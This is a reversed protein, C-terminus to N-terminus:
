PIQQADPPNRGAAATPYKPADLNLMTSARQAKQTEYMGILGSASPSRNHSHNRPARDAPHAALLDALSRRQQAKPREQPAEGPTGVEKARAEREAQLRKRRQALTEEEEPAPSGSVEKGKGKPESLGGGFQSIMELAFDGSVPRASPLGMATGAQEKLRRVRQALTEDEEEEPMTVTLNMMTSARPMASPRGQLRGRRRSLPENDEM